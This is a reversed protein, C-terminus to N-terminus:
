RVSVILGVNAINSGIGNGLAIEPAGMLMGASSVGLEPLSTIMGLAIGVILPPLGLRAGVSEATRSVISSTKILALLAAGTLIAPSALVTTGLLSAGFVGISGAIVGAEFYKNNWIRSALSFVPKLRSKVAPIEFNTVDVTVEM